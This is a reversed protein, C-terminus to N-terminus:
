RRPCNTLQPPPPRWWFGAPPSSPGASRNSAHFTPIQHPFGGASAANGAAAETAAVETVLRCDELQAPYAELRPVVVKRKTDACNVTGVTSQVPTVAGLPAHDPCQTPSSPKRDEDVVTSCIPRSAPHSPM